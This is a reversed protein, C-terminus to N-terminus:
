SIYNILAEAIKQASSTYVYDYGHNKLYKDPYAIGTFNAPSYNDDHARELWTLNTIDKSTKSYYAIFLLRNEKARMYSRTCIDYIVGADAGGFISLQVANAPLSNNLMYTNHTNPGIGLIVTNYGKSKLISAISEMFAEDVSTNYINDSTIYITRTTSDSPHITSWSYVKCTTPLYTTTALDLVKSFSYLINYYGLNGLSTNSYNPAQRNKSMYTLVNNGIRLMESISLKGETVSDQINTPAAFKSYSIENSTTGMRVMKVAKIEMVLFDQLSVKQGDVTVYSPINNSEFQTRLNVAAEKIQSFTFASSITLSGTGTDPEYTNSGGYVVTITYSKSSLTGLNYSLIAKGNSVNAHGITKGNIKFAVLGETVYKVNKDTVTAVINVTTSKYANITNATVYTPMRHLVLLAQSECSSYVDNGGYIASITYNKAMLGTTNYYAIAKGNTVNTTGVTVGNIKFSVKGSTVYENNSDAITAVLTVNNTLYTDIKKVTSRTTLTSTTLTSTKLVSAYTATKYMSENNITITNSSSNESNILNSTKNVDTVISTNKVVNNNVTQINNNTNNITANKTNLNNNSNENSQNSNTSLDNSESNKTNSTNQVTTVSKGLNSTSNKSSTIQVSNNSQINSDSQQIINSNSVVDMQNNISQQTNTSNNNTDAASVVSLGVM